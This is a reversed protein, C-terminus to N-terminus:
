FFLRGEPRVFPPQQPTQAPEWTGNATQVMVIPAEEGEPWNETDEEDEVIEPQQGQQVRALNMQRIIVQFVPAFRGVLYCFIGIFALRYVGQYFSWLVIAAAMSQGVFNATSIARREDFWNQLVTRLVRAGDLPYMPLITILGYGLHFRAWSQLWDPSEPGLSRSTFFMLGGTALSLLPGAATILLDNARSEPPQTLRFTSLFPYVVISESVEGNLRAMVAHGLSHVFAALWLGFWFVLSDLRGSLAVSFVAIAAQISYITVQCTSFLTFLRWSTWFM